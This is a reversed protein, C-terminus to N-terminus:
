GVAKKAMRGRMVREAWGPKYGKQRGLERLQELTESRGQERRAARKELMEATVEELEGEREEIQRAEIPFEYGCPPPGPNSCVKARSPSAAFCQPCIRVSISPKANKKMEGNNLTWNREDTPLGHRTCNGAHDFCLAIKGPMPRLIRGLQQIWLGLSMTPRLFIGCEIGACDYGESFLDASAMLQIKGDAFDRTAMRRVERATGGDLAIAPYGAERFQQAVHHAHKVSTCFALARKGEAHKRWENLASGTVSPKDALAESEQQAYDGREIRLGSVNITPPAFIRAPALEGLATLEAVSPGIVLADFMTGLGAGSTRVPTATVGLVKARPWHDLIRKYTEAVSRHCEDVIILQPEPVKDLRRVLTQVSAVMTQRDHRPYGAAIFSHETDSRTLAASIQDLLEIRHAAILVRNGKAAAGHAISSFIFTKGWSTPGVLCVRRAGRGYAVKVQDVYPSQTPRLTIM